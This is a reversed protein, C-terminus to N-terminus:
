TGPLRAVCHVDEMVEDQMFDAVEVTVEPQTLASLTTTAFRGWYALRFGADDDRYEFPPAEQDTTTTIDHGVLGVAVRALAAQHEHGIREAEEISVPGHADFVERLFVMGEASVTGPLSRVWADFDDAVSRTEGMRCLPKLSLLRALFRACM